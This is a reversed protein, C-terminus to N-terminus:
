ARKKKRVFYLVIKAVIFVIFLALLIWFYFMINKPLSNVKKFSIFIECDETVNDVTFKNDFVDIKEGNVTVFDIVFGEETTISYDRSSGHAIQSEIDVSNSSIIDGGKGWIIKINYFKMEFDIVVNKDTTIQKIEYFGNTERLATGNVNLGHIEYGEKPLIKFKIDSYRSVGVKGNSIKYVEGGNYIEILCSEGTNFNVFLEGKPIVNVSIDLSNTTNKWNFSTNINQSNGNFSVTQIEFGANPKVLFSYSQNKYLNKVESLLCGDVFVSYNEGFCDVTYTESSNSVIEVATTSTRIQQQYFDVFEVFVSHKGISLTPLKFKIVGEFDNQTTTYEVAKKSGDIYVTREVNVGLVGVEMYINQSQKEVVRSKLDKSVKLTLGYFNINHIKAFDEAVTGEYGYIVNMNLSGIKQEDINKVYKGILLSELGTHSFAHKGVNEIYPLELSQLASCYAFAREGLSTIKLVDFVRLNRCENFAYVGLSISQNYSHVEKINLNKNFAYDSIKTVTSPLNLIEVNSDSFAASGIAVVIGDKIYSQLNLETLEGKYKSIMKKGFSVEELEFNSDIDINNFYYIQSSNYSMKILNGLADYIYAVATVKTSENIMIPSLYRRCSKDVINVFDDLSYYIEARQDNELSDYSLSLSFSNDHFKTTDSFTVYGSNKIGIKSLNIMGWGYQSDWGSSGLDVANEKLLNLIDTFNYNKFEPNSYILAVAATVHPAAMSTGTMSALAKSSSIGASIISTGPAAFDIHRGYNSYSSDFRVVNEGNVQVCKLASVTFAEYVNAPCANSTDTAENGASVVPLIGSSYANQVASVLAPNNVSVSSDKREIGVSMNMVKINPMRVKMEKLDKVADIIMTVEGKGKGNLIKLPLIKVNDLTSNAIIGSVHTGHGKFDEFVYNSSGVAEGTYDRGENFLIRGKFFEHSTNIGSDLVAVIVENLNDKSNIKLMTETYAGYGVFEAGWSKYNFTSESEIEANGSIIYDYSVSLDSNKFQEFANKAESQSTYQFIHFEEFEAKAVAGCADVKEDSVVILRNNQPTNELIVKSNEVKVEATKVAYFGSSNKAGTKNLGYLDIIDSKIYVEDNQIEYDDNQLVIDNDWDDYKQRMNMLSNHFNEYTEVNEANLNSINIPFFLFVALILMSLVGFMCM